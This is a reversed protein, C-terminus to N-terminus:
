KDHKLAVLLLSIITLMIIIMEYDTMMDIVEWSIYEGPVCNM